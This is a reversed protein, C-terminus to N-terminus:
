QGRIRDSPAATTLAQPMGHEAKLADHRFNDDSLAKVDWPWPCSDPKRGAAQFLM